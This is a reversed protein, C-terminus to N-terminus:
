SGEQAATRPIGPTELEHALLFFIGKRPLECLLVRSSVHQHGRGGERKTVHAERCPGRTGNSHLALLMELCHASVATERM